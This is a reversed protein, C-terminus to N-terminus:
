LMLLVSELCMQYIEQFLDCSCSAIKQRAQIRYGTNQLSITKQPIRKQKGCTFGMIKDSSQSINASIFLCQM